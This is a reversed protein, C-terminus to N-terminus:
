ASFHQMRAVDFLAVWVGGKGDGAISLTDHPIHAALVATKAGADIRWLSSTGDVAWVTDGSTVAMGETYALKAGAPGLVTRQVNGAADIGDLEGNRMAYFLGDITPSAWLVAGASTSVTLRGTKPDVIVPVGDQSAWLHGDVVVPGDIAGIFKVIRGTHTNVGVIQARDPGGAAIWVTSGLVAPQCCTEGPLKTRQVIKNTKPDIGVLLRGSGYHSVWVLGAGSTIGGPEVAGTKIRALTKGTTIDLRVVVNAHHAAVWL